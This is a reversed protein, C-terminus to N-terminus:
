VSSKSDKNHVSLEFKSPSRYMGSFHFYIPIISGNERFTRAVGQSLISVQPKGCMTTGPSGSLTAPYVAAARPVDELSSCRPRRGLSSSGVKLRPEWGDRSTLSPKYVM